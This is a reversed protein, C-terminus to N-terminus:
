AIIGGKGIVLDRGRWSIKRNIAARLWIIPTIAAKLAWIEITKTTVRGGLASYLWLDSFCWILVSVTAAMLGYDPCAVYALFSVFLPLQLPAAFFVLPNHAKTITGWRQHRQVFNKLTTKGVYQQIPTNLLEVQYGLREIMKGSEYDEAIYKALQKLGGGRELLSKRFLMSKGLVFGHRVARAANIWRAYYTTLYLEELEGGLEEGGVGQVYATVIGAKPNSMLYSVKNALYNADVRINSDSILILDYKASAYSQALNNVKPNFGLLTEGILLKADCAPNKEILDKVLPICPDQKDAVSFIIEYSPYNLVFFSKLNAELGNDVGKLPKLISVSPYTSITKPKSLRHRRITFFTAWLMVGTTLSWLWLAASM